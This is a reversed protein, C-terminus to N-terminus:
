DFKIAKVPQIFKVVLTPLIAILAVWLLTILNFIAIAVWDFLIPVSNMYYNEPDLPILQFKSQLFGFGLGVFNGILLGWGILRIMNLLFIKQIQWDRAGLAKLTGIMQIREVIMILLISIINLYAIILIITLLFSANARIMLFWDFLHRFEDTVKEATLSFNMNRYLEDHAQDLQEFDPIFVEFGGVLTDSWNNIKQIMRLDSLVMLEDFDEIGTEYIGVVTIPRHKPPDQVFFINARDGVKLRLKNAIKQSIVIERSYKKGDLRPFRGAKMNSQFRASDFDSGIGKLMVGSLEEATKLIGAKRAFSQIHQIEPFKEPHAYINSSTSIPMEEYSNQLDFKSVKMHASLSFIKEQITHRFGNFIISTVIMVTLGLAVSGVAIKTILASFNSGQKSRLKKAILYSFSTKSL